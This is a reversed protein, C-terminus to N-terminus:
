KTFGDIDNRIDTLLLKRSHSSLENSLRIHDGTIFNPVVLGATNVIFHEFSRSDHLLPIDALKQEVAMEYFFVVSLIRGFSLQKRHLSFCYLYFKFRLLTGLLCQLCNM